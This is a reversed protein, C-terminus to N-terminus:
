RKRGGPDPPGVGGTHGLMYPRLRLCAESHIQSVRSETIGLVEGIERLTLDKLYYLTLVTRQRETLHHQIADSMANLAEKMAVQEEVSSSRPDELVDSLPRSDEGRKTEFSVLFVSRGEDVLAWYEQIDVGLFEAVEEPEAVRGLRQELEVVAAQIRNATSRAQRSVPDLRRLVDLMAGRIRFDAFTSFMVHRSADYRNMADLLGLAGSNILDDLEVAADPPIRAMLRRAMAAIRPTFQAVTEDRTQGDICSGDQYPGGYGPSEFRPMM